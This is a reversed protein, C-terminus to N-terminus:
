SYEKGLSAQAFIKFNQGVLSWSMHDEKKKDLRHMM